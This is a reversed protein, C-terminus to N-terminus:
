VVRVRRAGKNSKDRLSFLIELVGNKYEARGSDPDVEAKLEMESKYRRTGQEAKVTASRETASIVINEKDVGPLDVVVRLAGGKEDVVQETLPSRFGDSHLPNDGFFQISPGEPGVQMAFGGVFPGSLQRGEGLVRRVSNQFDKEMEEFYRDLEDLMDRLNRRRDEESM